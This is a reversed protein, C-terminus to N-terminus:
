AARREHDRQMLDIATQSYWKVGYGIDLGVYATGNLVTRKVVPLKRWHGFLAWVYEPPIKRIQGAPLAYTTNRIRERRLRRYIIEGKSM